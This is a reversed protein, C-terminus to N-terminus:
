RGPTPSAGTTTRSSKRSLRCATSDPWASRRMSVAISGIISAGQASFRELDEVLDPDRILKKAERMTRILYPELYPLLLSLGILGYSEEPEGEICVPDIEDPFDFEMRRVTIDHM